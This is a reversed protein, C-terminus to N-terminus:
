AELAAVCRGIAERLQASDRHGYLPGGTDSLLEEVLLVGRAAVPRELECLLSGLALLDPRCLRIAVRDLPSASPLRREDAVHLAGILSRGLELRHEEAVLERSRWALRPSALRTARLAADARERQRQLERRANWTRLPATLRLAM